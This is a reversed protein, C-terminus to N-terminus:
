SFSQPSVTNKWWNELGNDRPRGLRSARMFKEREDDRVGEIIM